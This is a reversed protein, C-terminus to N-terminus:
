WKVAEPDIIKNEQKDFVLRDNEVRAVIRSGDPIEGKLIAMSLPNELYKQIARKLPRAGYIPDYGKDVILDLVSESISLIIRRDALRQELRRTQLM